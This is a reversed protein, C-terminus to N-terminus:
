IIESKMKAFETDLENGYLSTATLEIKAMSKRADWQEEENRACKFNSIALKYQEMLYEKDM